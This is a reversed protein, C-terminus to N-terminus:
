AAPGRRELLAISPARVTASTATGLRVELRYEIQHDNLTLAQDSEIDIARYVGSSNALTYFGAGGNNTLVRDDAGTYEWVGGGSDHGPDEVIRIEATGGTTEIMGVANAFAGSGNRTFFGTTM